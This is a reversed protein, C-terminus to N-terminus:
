LYGELTQNTYEIQGDTQSHFATSIQLQIHLLKGLGQYVHSSFQLGRDSIITDILGFQQYVQGHLAEATEKTTITKHCPHFLAVKTLGHNVIVMLTNYGKSPLLNTIFDVLIQQFPQITNSPIPLLLYIPPHTNVKNQQCTSCGKVYNAM